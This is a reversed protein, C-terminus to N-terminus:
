RSPGQSPKPLPRPEPIPIKTSPEPSQGPETAPNIKSKAFRLYEERKAKGEPTELYRRMIPNHRALERLAAYPMKSYIAPFERKTQIENTRINRPLEPVHIKGFGQFAKHIM